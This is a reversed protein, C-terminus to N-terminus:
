GNAKMTENYEQITSVEGHCMPCSERGCDPCEDPTWIPEECSLCIFGPDPM